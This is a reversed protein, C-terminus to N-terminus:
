KFLFRSLVRLGEAELDAQMSEEFVHVRDKNIAVNTLHTYLDEFSELTEKYKGTCIRTLGQKTIYLTLPDWSTVLAYIRFTVKFGNLLQPKLIYRQALPRQVEMWKRGEEDDLQSVHTICRIGSGCAGRAPKIIFPIHIPNGDQNYFNKKFEEWKTPLDYGEPWFAFNELGYLQQMRFLNRHLLDKICLEPMAPFWNVTQHPLLSSIETREMGMTWIAHCQSLPFSIDVMQFGLREFEQRVLRPGGRPYKGKFKFYKVQNRTSSSEKESEM